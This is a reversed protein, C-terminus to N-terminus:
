GELRHSWGEEEGARHSCSESSGGDVAQPGHFCGEPSQQSSGQRGLGLRHGLWQVFDEAALKVERSSVLPFVDM